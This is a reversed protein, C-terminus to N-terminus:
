CTGGAPVAAGGGAGGGGGPAAQMQVEAMRGFGARRKHVAYAVGGVLALLAAAVLVGVGIGVARRRVLTGDERVYQPYVPKPRTTPPAALPSVVAAPGDDPGAKKSTHAEFTAAEAADKLAAGPPKATTSPTAGTAESTPPGLAASGVGDIVSGDGSVIIVDEDPGNVAVPPAAATGPRAGQDAPAAPDFGGDGPASYSDSLADGAAQPLPFAATAAMADALTSAAATPTPTANSPGRLRAPGGVDEIPAAGAGAGAQGRAPVAGAVLAVLACVALTAAWRASRRPPM